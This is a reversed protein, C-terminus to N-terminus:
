SCRAMKPPRPWQVLGPTITVVILGTLLGEYDGAFGDGVYEALFALPPQLLDPQRRRIHSSCYTPCSRKAACILVRERTVRIKTPVGTIAPWGYYGGRKVRTSHGAVLDDGLGDRENPTCV